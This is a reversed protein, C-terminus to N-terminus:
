VLKLVKNGWGYSEKHREFMNTLSNCYKSHMEDIQIKLIEPDVPRAVNEQIYRPYIPDGVTYLLRQRFPIPLGFAGYIIVISIRL